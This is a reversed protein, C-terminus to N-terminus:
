EFLIGDAIYMAPVASATASAGAVDAGYLRQVRNMLTQGVLLKAFQDTTSSTVNSSLSSNSNRPTVVFTASCSYSPHYFLSTGIYALMAFLAASMIVMWLNKWIRQLICYPEVQAWVSKAQTEKQMM